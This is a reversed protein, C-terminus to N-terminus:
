PHHLRLLGAANEGLIADKEESRIKLNKVRQVTNELDSIQHPFDSGLVIREAGSFSYASM